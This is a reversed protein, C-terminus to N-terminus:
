KSVQVLVQVTSAPNNALARVTIVGQYTNTWGPDSDISSISFPSGGDNTISTIFGDADGTILTNYFYFTKTQGASLAPVSLSLIAKNEYLAVGGNFNSLGSITSASVASCTCGVENYAINHILNKDGIINVKNDQLALNLVANEMLAANTFGLMTTNGGIEYATNGGLFGIVDIENGNMQGTVYIGYSNSLNSDDIANGHIENYAFNSNHINIEIAHKAGTIFNFYLHNGQISGSTTGSNFVIGNGGNANTSTLYIENGGLNNNDTADVLLASQKTALISNIHITSGDTNQIKIGTVNYNEGNIKAMDYNQLNGGYIKIINGINGSAQLEASGCMRFNKDQNTSNLILTRSLQHTDCVVLDGSSMKNWASQIVFQSDTSNYDINGTTGNVAIAYNGVKKVLYSNDSYAYINPIIFIVSLIILILLFKM